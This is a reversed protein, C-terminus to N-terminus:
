VKSECFKAHGHTAVVKFGMELFEKVVPVVTLRDRDRMSVLVTGSLPMLQGAGLQAKAFAKGFDTDIGMVEGTSRM